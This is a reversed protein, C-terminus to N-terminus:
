RPECFVEACHETCLHEDLALSRWRTMRGCTVCARHRLELVFDRNRVRACRERRAENRLEVELASM